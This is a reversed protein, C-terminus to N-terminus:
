KILANALGQLNDEGPLNPYAKQMAAILEEATKSKALLHKLM